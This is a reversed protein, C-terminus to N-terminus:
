LVVLALDPGGDALWMAMGDGKRNDASDAQKHKPGSHHIHDDRYATCFSSSVHLSERDIGVVVDAYERALLFSGGSGGGREVGEGALAFQRIQCGIPRHAAQDLNPVPIGPTVATLLNVFRFTAISRMQFAMWPSPFVAGFDSGAM